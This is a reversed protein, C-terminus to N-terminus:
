ECYVILQISDSYSVGAVNSVACVYMGVDSRSVSIIEKIGTTKNTFDVSQGNKTWTYLITEPRNPYQPTSECNLLVNQGETVAQIPAVTPKAPKGKQIYINLLLLRLLPKM